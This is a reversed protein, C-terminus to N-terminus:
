RACVRRKCSDALRHELEARRKRLAEQIQQVLLQEAEAIDAAIKAALVDNNQLLEAVTGDIATLAQMPSMCPRIDPQGTVAHQTSASQMQVHCADTQTYLCTYVCVGSTCLLFFIRVCMASSRESMACAKTSMHMPM